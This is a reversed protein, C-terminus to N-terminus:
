LHLLLRPVPTEVLFVSVTERRLPLPSLFLSVERVQLKGTRPVLVYVVVPVVVFRGSKIVCKSKYTDCDVLHGSM